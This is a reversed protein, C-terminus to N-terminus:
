DEIVKKDGLGLYPGQKIELIESADLIEIGHGGSALLITDGEFLILSESVNQSDGYLDVRIRGRRIVLVEQTKSISREVENHIHAPVKHNADRTMLGLQLGFDLPSFFEIGEIKENKRIVIATPNKPNGYYEVTM